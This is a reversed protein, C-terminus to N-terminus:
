ISEKERVGTLDILLIIYHLKIVNYIINYLLVKIASDYVNWKIAMSSNKLEDKTPCMKQEKSCALRIQIRCYVNWNEQWRERYEMEVDM